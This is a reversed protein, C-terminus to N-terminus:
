GQQWFVWIPVNATTCHSGFLGFQSMQNKIRAALFGLNPCKSNPLASLFGLNPCKSNSLSFWFVWIPANATPYYSGFFGFQPMQQQITLVLFGLNPCKSNSLLFWFVWISVNAIPYYSGFFGFQSM